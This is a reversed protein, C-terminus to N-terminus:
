MIKRIKEVTNKILEDFMMQNMEDDEDYGMFAAERLSEGIIKELKEM